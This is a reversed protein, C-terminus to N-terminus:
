ICHTNQLSVPPQYNTVGYFKLQRESTSTLIDNLYKHLMKKTTISLTFILDFGKFHTIIM